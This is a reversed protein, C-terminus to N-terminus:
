SLAVCLADTNPPTAGPGAVFIPNFNADFKIVGVQM